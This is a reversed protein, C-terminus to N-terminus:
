PLDILMMFAKEEAEVILNSESEIRATDGEKLQKGNVTVQGEIVFM